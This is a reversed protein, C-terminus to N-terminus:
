ARSFACAAASIAPSTNAFPIQAVRAWPRKHRLQQCDRGKDFLSGNGSVRQRVRKM